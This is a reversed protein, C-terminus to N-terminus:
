SIETVVPLMMLKTFLNKGKLECLQVCWTTKKLDLCLEIRHNKDAPKGQKHASKKGEGLFVFVGMWMGVAAKLLGVSTAKYM